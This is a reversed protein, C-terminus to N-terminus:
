LKLKLAKTIKLVDHKLSNVSITSGSIGDIGKNYILTSEMDVGIFQKLWRKSCIEAGWNERYHLIDVKLIEIENDFLVYYDFRLFKSPADTVALYGIIFDNNKITYFTDDIANIRCNKEKFVKAISSYITKRDDKDSEWYSSKFSFFLLAIVILIIAKSLYTKIKM